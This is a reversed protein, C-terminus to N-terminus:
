RCAPSAAPISPSRGGCVRKVPQERVAEGAGLELMRAQELGRQHQQEPGVEDVHGLHRVVPRGPERGVVAMRHGFPETGSRAHQGARLPCRGCGCGALFGPSSRSGSAPSCRARTCRGGARTPGGSGPTTRRPLGGRSRWTRPRPARSPRRYAARGRGRRGRCRTRRRCRASRCARSARPCAPAGGSSGSTADEDGAEVDDEEPDGPHHHHLELQDALHREAVDVDVGEDAVLLALLHRLRDAVDEVRDLQDVREAGVGDAEGEGREGGHAAVDLEGAVPDGAVAVEAGLEPVGGAEGLEVVAARAGVEVRLRHGEGGVFPDDALGAPEAGVEVRRERGVAEVVGGVRQVGM